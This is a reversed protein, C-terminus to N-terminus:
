SGGAPGTEGTGAADVRRASREGHAAGRGAAPGGDDREGEERAQEPGQGCGRGVVRLDGEAQLLLALRGLREVAGGDVTDDVREERSVGTDGRDAPPEVVWCCGALGHPRVRGGGEVVR